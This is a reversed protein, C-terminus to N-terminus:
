WTNQHFTGQWQLFWWFEWQIEANEVFNGFYSALAYALNREHEFDILIEASYCFAIGGLPASNEQFKLTQNPGAWWLRLHALVSEYCAKSRFKHCFISQGSWLRYLNEGKYLISWCGVVRFRSKCYHYYGIAALMGHIALFHSFIDALKGLKFVGSFGGSGIEAVVM